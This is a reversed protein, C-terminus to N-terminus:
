RNEALIRNQREIESQLGALDFQLEKLRYAASDPTAMRELQGEYAAIDVVYKAASQQLEPLVAEAILVEVKKRESVPLYKLESQILKTLRDIASDYYGLKNDDTASGTREPMATRGQHTAKVPLLDAIRDLCERIIHPALSELLSREGGDGRSKMELTLSKKMGDIRDGMQKWKMSESTTQGLRSLQNELAGKNVIESALNRRLQICVASSLSDSMEDRDYGANQIEEQLQKELGRIMADMNVSKADNMDSLGSVALQGEYAAKQCTLDAIEAQLRSIRIDASAKDISVSELSPNESNASTLMFREPNVPRGDEIVEYHLHPGTARGTQGVRGIMDWRKVKQGNKVLVTDLMMYRTQFGNSHDIVIHRGGGKGTVYRNEAILVKGAATAYVPTGKPMAIDVGEHASLSGLIPDKRLGFWSVVKGNKVPSIFPIYEKGKKNFSSSDDSRLAAAELQTLDSKTYTNSPLDVESDGVTLRKHGAAMPLVFVAALGLLGLILVWQRKGIDAHRKINLIRRMVKRRPSGFGPLIAIEDTGFVNWKLVSLLGLGYTETSLKRKSIVLSDCLCERLLQVRSGAIWAVPHFFYVIQVLNQLKMWLADYCRVHALEHSIVAEALSDNATEAVSKPLYVVPRFIGITFPSLFEDSTLLRVPRRIRYLSKWHELCEIREKQDVNKAKRVIRSYDLLRKLYVALLIWAGAMWVTVLFSKWPIIRKATMGMRVSGASPNDAPDSLSFEGSLGQDPTGSQISQVNTHKLSKTMSGILNRASVPFSLDTPLVLRILILMWLGLHLLPSQKRLLHALVLVPVFLITSFVVQKQLIPLIFGGANELWAVFLTWM